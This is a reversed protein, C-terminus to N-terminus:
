DWDWDGEGRGVRARTPLPSHVDYTPTQVICEQEKVIGDGITDSMIIQSGYRLIDLQIWIHKLVNLLNGLKCSSCQFHYICRHNHCSTFYTFALAHEPPPRGLLLFWTLVVIPHKKNM